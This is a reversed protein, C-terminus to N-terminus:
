DNEEGANSLYGYFFEIVRAMGEEYFQVAMELDERGEEDLSDVFAVATDESMHSLPHLSEITSRLGTEISQLTEKATKPTHRYELYHYNLYKKLSNVAAKTDDYRLALKMDYLTETRPTLWFGEPKKGFKKMFESKRNQIEYFAVQLPDSEYYFLKKLTEKYPEGPKGTIARYENDLGLERAFHLGRDRVVRRDFADPFFSQRTLMEVPFKLFPTTGQVMQNVPAKPAEGAAENIVEKLSKEGQVIDAIQGPATDLGFWELFDGLAGIRTFYIPKGTDKDVGLIIHPRNKVEPPLQEEIEPFKLENWLNVITLAAVAKTALKGVKYAYYPTKLGTTILKRGLMQAAKPERHINKAFGVYRKFNVEKWSWFPYWFDRLKQGHVSVRDYAGLLENSLVFARDRIDSLAMIEKPNSAGFNKPMGKPDKKMQDLFDLYNAYRLIGERFDSIMRAGRWYGKWAKAPLTFVNNKQDYFRKFIQLSKASGLEQTTLNSEPGGRKFWERLEGKLPEKGFYFEYMGLGAEPVRKFGSPNGVFAPDADGSVNRVNYKFIRRPNSLYNMKVGRNLNKAFKGTLSPSETRFENLTKALEEPIVWTERKGAAPIKRLKERVVGMDDLVGSAIEKALKAPLSDAMYFVNGETPSWAVHGEPINREFPIGKERAQKRVQRSIDYNERLKALTDYIVTDHIMRSMVSHEAEIYDTLYPLESEGTRAKMYSQNRPKQLKGGKQIRDMEVYALVQHRVYDERTFAEALDDRGAKKAADILNNRVKSFIDGRVELAKAVEPYKAMEANARSVERALTKENFKFSLSEGRNVSEIMDRLFVQRRFLDFSQKNLNKVIVGINRATYDQAYSVAKKTMDLTLHAEAFRAGPPLHQYARTSKNKFEELFDLSKQLGSEKPVKAAEQFLREHPEAFKFEGPKLMRGQRAATIGLKVNDPISKLRNLLDKPADKVGKFFRKAEAATIPKGELFVKDMVLKGKKGLKPMLALLAANGMMRLAAQKQPDETLGEALKELGYTAATFPSAAVETLTQGTKTKPQYIMIEMLQNFRQEAQIPDVEGKEMGTILGMLTYPGVAKVYQEGAAGILAAPFGPIASGLSAATEGVGGIIDGTKELIRKGTEKPHSVDYALKGAEKKAVGSITKGTKKLFDPTVGPYTPFKAISPTEHRKAPMEKEEIFRRAMVGPPNEATQETLFKEAMKGPTKETQPELETEALFREAMKGPSKKKEEEEEDQISNFPYM